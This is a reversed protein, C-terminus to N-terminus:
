PRWRWSASGFRNHWSPGSSHDHGVPETDAGPGDIDTILFGGEGAKGQAQVLSIIMVATMMVTVVGIGDADSDGDNDDDGGDGDGDGENDYWKWVKM